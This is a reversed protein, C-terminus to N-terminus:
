INSDDKTESTIQARGGTGSGAEDHVASLPAGARQEEGVSVVAVKAQSSDCQQGDVQVDESKVAPPAETTATSGFETCESGAEAVPVKVDDSAAAPATTSLYQQLQTV